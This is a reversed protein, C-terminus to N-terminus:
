SVPDRSLGNHMSRSDGDVKCFLNELEGKGIGGAPHQLALAQGALRKCPHEVVLARQPDQHFGAAASM